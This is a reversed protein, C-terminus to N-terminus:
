GGVGTVIEMTADELGTQLPFGTVNVAVGTFPPVAGTKSHFTFPVLTPKDLEWYEYIGEFPSMTSHMRTDLEKHGFPFGAIDLKMVIITLELIVGFTDIVADLLGAQWPEM